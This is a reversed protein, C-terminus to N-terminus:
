MVYKFGGILVFILLGAMAILYLNQLADDNIKQPQTASGAESDVATLVYTVIEDSDSITIDDWGTGTYDPKTAKFRYYGNNLGEYSNYNLSGTSLSGWGELFVFCNDLNTGYQNKVYITLKNKRDETFCDVHDTRLVYGNHGIMKTTYNYGSAYDYDPKWIYFWKITAGSFDAWTLNIYDVLISGNYLEIDLDLLTTNNSAANCVIEVDNRYDM